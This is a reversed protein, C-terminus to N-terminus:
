MRWYMSWPQPLGSGRVVGGNGSYVEPWETCDPAAAVTRVAVNPANGEGIVGM